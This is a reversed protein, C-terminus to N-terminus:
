TSRCGPSVPPFASWWIAGKGPSRGCRRSPMIEASPITFLTPQREQRPDGQFREGISQFCGQRVTRSSLGDDRGRGGAQGGGGERGVIGGGRRARRIGQRTRGRRSRRRWRCGAGAADARRESTRSRAVRPDDHWLHPDAGRRRRLQAGRALAYIRAAEAVVKESLGGHGIMAIVRDGPSWDKIDEGVSEIVGAIEGGPAFPREPKFQYKDEIILVDPYNISCAKVAIVVQGKGAVPDPRDIMELTEPGGPAKSVLARM